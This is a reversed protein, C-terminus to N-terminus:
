TTIQQQSQVARRTPLYDFNDGHSLYADRINKGLSDMHGLFDTLYEHLGQAFVDEIRGFHLAAHQEGACRRAERSASGNIDILASEVENMCAHLSRPMDDRLILLEAVRLPSIVDRYIKRYAEFSNV